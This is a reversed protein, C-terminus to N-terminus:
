AGQLTAHANVPIFSLRLLESIFRRMEARLNLVQRSPSPLQHPSFLIHDHAPRYTSPPIASFCQSQRSAIHGYMTYIVIATKFTKSGEKTPVDIGNTTPKTAPGAAPKSAPKEATKTPEPNSARPRDEESFNKKLWKSPFCMASRRLLSLPSPLVPFLQTQANPRRGTPNIDLSCRTPSHVTSNPSFVWTFGPPSQDTTRDTTWFQFWTGPTPLCSVRWRPRHTIPDALHM